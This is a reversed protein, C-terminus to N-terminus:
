YSTVYMPESPIVAGNKAGVVEGGMGHVFRDNIYWRIYGQGEPDSEPLQWEVKYTQMSSWMEHTLQTNASASNAPGARQKHRRAAARVAGM